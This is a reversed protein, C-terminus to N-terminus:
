LIIIIKTNARKFEINCRYDLMSLYYDSWFVLNGARVEASRRLIVAM